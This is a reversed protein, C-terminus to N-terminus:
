SSSIDSDLADIDRHKNPVRVDKSQRSGEEEPVHMKPAKSYNAGSVIHSEAMPKEHRHTEPVSASVGFPDFGALM